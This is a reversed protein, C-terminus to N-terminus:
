RLKEVDVPVDGVLTDPTIGIGVGAAARERRFKMKRM